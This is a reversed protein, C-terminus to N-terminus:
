GINAFCTCGSRKQAYVCTFSIHYWPQIAKLKFPLGFCLAAANTATVNRQQTAHRNSKEHKEQWREGHTRTSTTNKTFFWIFCNLTGFLAIKYCFVFLIIQEKKKTAYDIEPFTGSASGRPAFYAFFNTTPSLPTRRMRKNLRNALIHINSVFAM